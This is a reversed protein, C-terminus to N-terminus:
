LNVRVKSLKAHLKHAEDCLRAVEAACKPKAWLSMTAIGFALRRTSGRPSVSMEELLRGEFDDDALVNKTAM